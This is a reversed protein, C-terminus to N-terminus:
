VLISSIMDLVPRCNEVSVHKIFAEVYYVVHKYARIARIAEACLRGMKERSVTCTKKTEAKGPKAIISHLENYFEVAVTPPPPPPPPQQQQESCSKGQSTNSTANM